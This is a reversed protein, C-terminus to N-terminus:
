VRVTAPAHSVPAPAATTAPEDTRRTTTAAVLIYAAFSVGAALFTTWGDVSPGVLDNPIYLLTNDVGYITPTLVFFGIRVSIGAVVAAAVARADGRKWYLGLIFPAVISALLLDFTLTLLIGTQPVRLAVVAGLAAMPIMAFRTAKMVDASMAGSNGGIRLVNRVLVSATSLLIGSVTTLSAIVLGSIVVIALWTPAYEGLLVYLIPGHAADAGVISVAAVAVLSLPVCVILIGAAASFCARQAIEPSKASFVRQMLDIAVLNGLGLAVITAWNIAAGEAASTLQSLDGVGLGPEASFGPGTAVWVVLAASGVALVAFQVMGTYVSAFMGGAMTYALAFPILALVAWTYSIGVFFELLFGLAVLNGALLIGFSMVTLLSATVETGRGFRSAFFEPLTVIETRRLKKAFALGVLLVALAVGIPMAAGAWFGFSAALDASGLTANSDVVQSMLLVAVVPTGLSRGAVLFNDTEGRVRRTSYFGVAVVLALCIAVGTIIM